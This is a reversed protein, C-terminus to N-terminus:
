IGGSPGRTLHVQWDTQRLAISETATNIANVLEDLHIALVGSQPDGLLAVEASRYLSRLFEADAVKLSDQNDEYLSRLADACGHILEDLERSPEVTSGREAQVIRIAHLARLIRM